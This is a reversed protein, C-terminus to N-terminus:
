EQKATPGVPLCDLVIVRSQSYMCAHILCACDSKSPQVPLTLCACDSKSPQVPLYDLM